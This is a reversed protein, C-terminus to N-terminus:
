NNLTFLERFCRKLGLKEMIRNTFNPRKGETPVGIYGGQGQFQLHAKWDSCVRMVDKPLTFDPHFAPYVVPLFVHDHYGFLVGDRYYAYVNINPHAIIEHDFTKAFAQLEAFEPTNPPVFKYTYNSQM